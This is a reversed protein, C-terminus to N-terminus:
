SLQLPSSRFRYDICTSHITSNILCFYNEDYIIPCYEHIGKLCDFLFFKKRKVFKAEKQM